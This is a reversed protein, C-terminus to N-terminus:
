GTYWLHRLRVPKGQHSSARCSTRRRVLPAGRQRKYVDKVNVFTRIHEMTTRINKEDQKLVIVATLVFWQTGVGIGLDGSEDIYVTCDSM